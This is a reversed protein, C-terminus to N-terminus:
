KGESFRWYVPHEAEVSKRWSWGDDCWLEQRSYGGDDVFAAFQANTVATRSIAFPQLEVEHALLENDFAFREDSKSGLLFLGGPLMVDGAADTVKERERIEHFGTYPRTRDVFRPAAYALTQRTYTIAEAHMDEHFLALSVFYSADNSLHRAGEEQAVLNLEDDLVRQMYDTTEAKSPLPLDWRTAHAVRASDYITDGQALIPYRGYLHRLVWYEQFWAVHGVEWLLPNVIDLRPGIMHEHHLDAILTLTRDRAEKLLEACQVMSLNLTM